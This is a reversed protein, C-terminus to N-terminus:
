RALRHLYNPCQGPCQLSIGPFTGVFSFLHIFRFRRVVVPRLDACPLGRYTLFNNRKERHLLDWSSAILPHLLSSIVSMGGAYFDVLMSASTLRLLPYM